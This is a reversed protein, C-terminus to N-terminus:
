RFLVLDRFNNMLRPYIDTKILGWSADCRLRCDFCIFKAPIRKDETSHYRRKILNYRQLAFPIMNGWVGLVSRLIDMFSVVSLNEGFIFGGKVDVRVFAVNMKLRFMPEYTTGKLLAFLSVTINCECSLGKDSTQGRKPRTAKRPRLNNPRMCPTLPPGLEMMDNEQGRSNYTASVTTYINKGTSSNTQVNMGDSLTLKALLQAEDEGLVTVSSDSRHVM